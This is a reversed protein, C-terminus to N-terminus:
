SKAREWAHRVAMKMREWTGPNREEWASRANPEVEDWSEGQFRRDTRLGGGFAYAPKYADYDSGYDDNAARGSLERDYHERYGYDADQTGVRQVDAETRRVTDKITETRHEVDKKLLIEEIVRAQKTVVPRETTATVELSRERFVDDNATVPRDVSRREVDVRENRLEVREEVPTSAVHTEVRIGGANQQQKGIQLEEQVIPVSASRDNSLEWEREANAGRPTEVGQLEQGQFDDGIAHSQMVKLAQAAHDDDISVTELTCGRRVGEVYRVAEGRPIGMKVLAGTLLDPSSEAAGTHLFTTLPGGAALQGMGPISVTDLHIGALDDLSESSLVSIDADHAGVRKLDSITAIAEQRDRFLGIVTKM